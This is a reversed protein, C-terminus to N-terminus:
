TTSYYCCERQYPDGVMFYPDLLIFDVKHFDGDLVHYEHSHRDLRLMNKADSFFTFDSVVNERFFYQFFDRFPTSM